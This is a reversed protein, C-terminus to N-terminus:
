GYNEVIEGNPYVKDKHIEHGLYIVNTLLFQSCKPSFKINFNNYFEFIESLMDIHGGLTESFLVIKGFYVVQLYVSFFLKRLVWSVM